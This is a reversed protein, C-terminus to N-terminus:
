CARKSVVKSFASGQITGNPPSPQIETEIPIFHMDDGDTLMTSVPNCCRDSGVIPLVLRCAYLEVEDDLLAELYRDDALRLVASVLSTGLRKQVAGCKKNGTNAKLSLAGVSPSLGTKNAITRFASHRKTSPPTKLGKATNFDSMEKQVVNQFIEEQSETAPGLTKEPPVLGGTNSVDINSINKEHTEGTAGHIDNTGSSNDQKYRKAVTKMALPTWLPPEAYQVSTKSYIDPQTKDEFDITRKEPVNEVHAFQSMLQDSNLGNNNTHDSHKPNALIYPTLNIDDEETPYQRKPTSFGTMIPSSGTPCVTLQGSVESANEIYTNVTMNSNFDRHNNGQSTISIKPATFQREYEGNSVNANLDGATTNYSVFLPERDSTSNGHETNESNQNQSLTDLQAKLKAVELSLLIKEETAQEIQLRLIEENNNNNDNNASQQTQQSGHGLNQQSVVHSDTGVMASGALQTVGCKESSSGPLNSDKGFQNGNIPQLDHGVVNSSSPALISVPLQMSVSSNHSSTSVISNHSTNEPTSTSKERPSYDQMEDQHVVSNCEAFADQEMEGENEICSKALADAWTLKKKRRLGLFVTEQEDDIERTDSVEATIEDDEDLVEKIIPSKNPTKKTKWFSRIDTNPTNPTLPKRSGPAAKRPCSNEKDEKNSPDSAPMTDTTSKLTKSMKPTVLVRQALTKKDVIFPPRPVRDPTIKPTRPEVPVRGAPTLPTSPDKPALHKPVRGSTFQPTRPAVPVRGAPTSPTGSSQNQPALHKPVRGPTSINPTALHSAQLKPNKQKPTQSISQVDVPEEKVISLEVNGLFDTRCISSGDVVNDGCTDGGHRAIAGSDFDENKMEKRVRGPTQSAFSQRGTISVRGGFQQLAPIRQAESDLSQMGMACPDVDTNDGNIQKGGNKDTKLIRQPTQAALSFRGVSIGPTKRKDTSNIISKEFVSGDGISEFKDKNDRKNKLVRQPTQASVSFRGVSFPPPKSHSRFVSDSGSIDDEKVEKLIRMPTSAALSFRGIPVTSSTIADGDNKSILVRQPTVASLSVRGAGFSDGCGNLPTRGALSFRKFSASNQGNGNNLSERGFTATNSTSFKRGAGAPIDFPNKPTEPISLERQVRAPGQSVLSPRSPVAFPNSITNSLHRSAPLSQRGISAPGQKFLENIQVGFKSCFDTKSPTLPQLNFDSKGADNLRPKKSAPPANRQLFDDCTRQFDQIPVRGAPAISSGKSRPTAALTHRTVPVSNNQPLVIGTENMISALAADDREFHVGKQEDLVNKGKATQKRAEKLIPKRTKSSTEFAVKKRAKSGTGSVARKLNHHAKVIQRQDNPLEGLVRRHAGIPSRKVASPGSSPSLDRKIGRQSAGSKLQSTPVPLKSKRTSVPPVNEKSAM